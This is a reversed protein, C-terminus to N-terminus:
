RPTQTKQGPNVIWPNRRGYMVQGLGARAFLVLCAFLIALPMVVGLFVWEGVRDTRSAHSV